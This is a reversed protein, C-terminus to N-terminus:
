WDFVPADRRYGRVILYVGLSLEAGGMAFTEGEVAVVAGDADGAAIRGSRDPEATFGSWWLPLSYEGLQGILVCGDKVVLPGRFLAAM